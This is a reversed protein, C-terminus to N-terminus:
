QHQSQKTRSCERLPMVSSSVSSIASYDVPSVISSVPIVVAIAPPILRTPKSKTNKNGSQSDSRKNVGQRWAMGGHYNFTGWVVMIVPIVVPLCRAATINYNRRRRYNLRLRFTVIIIPSFFATIPVVFFVPASIM